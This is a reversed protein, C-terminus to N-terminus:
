THRIHMVIRAVLFGNAADAVTIDPYSDNVPQVTFSTTSGLLKPKFRGFVATGTINDIALVLKGPEIAASPSCILLDGLNIEPSGMSSDVRVGFADGPVMDPASMVDGNGLREKITDITDTKNLASLALVFINKYIVPFQQKGGFRLEVESLGVAAALRAMVDGRPNAVDGDLYGYISKAPVGTRAALEDVSLGKREMAAKLRDWWMAPFIFM